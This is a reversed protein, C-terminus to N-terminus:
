RRGPRRQKMQEERSARREKLKQQQEPTLVALTETRIKAGLIAADADAAAVDVSKARVASEDLVEAELLARMAVRAARVTEGAAKMEAQHSGVISKIQGRQDDTLDLDRFEPGGFGMPGMPGGPGRMSGGPPGGPGPGPGRRGTQGDHAMVLTSGAALVIAAIGAAFSTKMTKTM